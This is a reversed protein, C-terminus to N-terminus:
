GNFYPCLQLLFWKTCFILFLFVLRTVYAGLILNSKQSVKHFGEKTKVRVQILEEGVPIVECVEKTADNLLCNLDTQNNLIYTEQM